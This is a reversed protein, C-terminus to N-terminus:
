KIKRNIRNYVFFIFIIIVLLKMIDVLTYSRTINIDCNCSLQKALVVANSVASELSTFHYLSKGNHTGLNYLNHITNSKFPLPTYKSSLIFANDTSVWKQQQEDRVVGPSLISVTPIPTDNGFTEKLQNFTELLLEHESCEDATKNIRPAISNTITVAASIVTKSNNETFHTYNTSIIFVVGWISKPFGYIDKLHVFTDWHFTMSLYNAYATEQSYEKLGKGFCDILLQNNKLINYLSTPPVALILKKTYIRKVNGSLKNTVSISEVFNNNLYIDSLTTTNLFEVNKSLLYNHWIKFIGIDNPIIPQYLNYFFQQNLLQLFENLTFKHSDGGDSLRCLRDIMEISTDKFRKHNIFEYLNINMGYSDDIILNLFPSIFTALEDYSLTSFLTDGGITGINFNYKKYFTYFDVGMKNLLKKFTSYTDSYIRPGHETFLMENKYPVRRVRHCGGVNVNDDIILIKKYDVCQALALGAPGAGVIVIDYINHEM